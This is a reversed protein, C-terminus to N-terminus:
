SSIWLCYIQERLSLRFLLFINQFDRFNLVQFCFLCVSKGFEGKVELGVFSFNTVGVLVESYMSVDRFKYAATILRYRRTNYFM